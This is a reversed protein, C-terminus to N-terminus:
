YSKSDDRSLRAEDCEGRKKRPRITATREIVSNLIEFKEASLANSNRIHTPVNEVTSVFVDGAEFNGESSISIVSIPVALQRRELLEPTELLKSSIAAFLKDQANRVQEIMGADSQRVQLHNADFIVVGAQQSVYLADTRVTGEINSLIPYGIYLTGSWDASEFIRILERAVESVAQEGYVIEAM